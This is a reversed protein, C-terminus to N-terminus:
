VRAPAGIAHPGTITLQVRKNLKWAEYLGIGIIVIGIINQFGALFPAALVIGVLLALALAITGAGLKPAPETAVSAPKDAAPTVAAEGTSAPATKASAENMGEKIGKIIPPVYTAVIALYTLAVALTQYRWGGRGNAGWRVAAGVGYGVVVAILGFEYGTAAAIGYYILAGLIAAVTGAGIARAARGLGSGGTMHAEIAFKCRECVTKGNADFYYGVLGQGCVACQAAAATGEFEARDFQIGPQESM